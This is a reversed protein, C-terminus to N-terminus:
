EYIRFLHLVIGSLLQVTGVYETTRMGPPWAEGTEVWRFAHPWPKGDDPSTIATEYMVPVGGEVRVCLPMFGRCDITFPGPTAPLEFRKIETRVSM